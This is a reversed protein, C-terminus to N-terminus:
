EPEGSGRLLYKDLAPIQAVLKKILDNYHKRYRFHTGTGTRLECEYILKGLTSTHRFSFQTGLLCLYPFNWAETSTEANAVWGAFQLTKAGLNHFRQFLYRAKTGHDVIEQAPAETLTKVIEEGAFYFGRPCLDM